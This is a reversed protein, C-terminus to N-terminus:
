IGNNNYFKNKSKNISVYFYSKGKLSIKFNIKKM